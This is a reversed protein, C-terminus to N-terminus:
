QESTREENQAGNASIAARKYFTDIIETYNKVNFVVYKKKKPNEETPKVTIQIRKHQYVMNEIEDFGFSFSRFMAAKGEIGTDTVSIEESVYSVLSIIDFVFRVIGSVATLIVLPIGIIPFVVSVISFLVLIIVLGIYKLIPGIIRDVVLGTTYYESKVTEETDANTKYNNNDM